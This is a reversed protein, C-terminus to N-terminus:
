IQIIEISYIQNSIKVPPVKTNLLNKIMVQCDAMTKVREQIEGITAQLRSRVDTMEQDKCMVMQLYHGTVLINVWELLKEEELKDNQKLLSFNFSANTTGTPSQAPM